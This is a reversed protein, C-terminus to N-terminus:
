MCIWNCSAQSLIICDHDFNEVENSNCYTINTRTRSQYNHSMRSTKGCGYDPVNISTDGGDTVKDSRLYSFTSTIMLLKRLMRMMARITQM